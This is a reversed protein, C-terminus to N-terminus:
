FEVMVQSGSQVVAQVDRKSSKNRVRIDDGLGGDTLAIGPMGIQIYPSNVGITVEEGKCILCLQQSTLIQNAMFNRKVKQGVVDELQTFVSGRVQSSDVEIISVDEAQIMQGRSLNHLTVVVSQFTQIQVPIYLTWPDDSECRVGVTTNGTQRARPPFFASLYGTCANLRLRPDLKGAIVKYQSTDSYALSDEVFQQAIQSVIELNQEQQAQTAKSLALLICLLIFGSNRKKM